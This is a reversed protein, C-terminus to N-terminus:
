QDFAMAHACDMRLGVSDNLCCQVSYGGAAGSTVDGVKRANSASFGEDVGPNGAQDIINGIADIVVRQFKQTLCFHLNGLIM